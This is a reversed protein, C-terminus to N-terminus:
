KEEITETWTQNKHKRKEDKWKWRCENKFNVTWISITYLIEIDM